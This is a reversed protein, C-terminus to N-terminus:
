DYHIKILRRGSRDENDEEKLLEASKSVITNREEGVVRWCIEGEVHMSRMAGWFIDMKKRSSERKVRGRIETSNM